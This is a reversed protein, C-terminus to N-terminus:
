FQLTYLLKTYSTLPQLRYLSQTAPHVNRPEFGPLCFLNKPANTFNRFAVILKTMDTQRDTQGVAHFLEVGVPHFKMFCSIQTIKPFDTSFLWAKNYESLFLTYKVQLVTYIKSWIEGLEEWFSFHKLCFNYSFGFCVNQTWYLKKKRFDHWKHSLTSVYEVAPCARWINHPRM